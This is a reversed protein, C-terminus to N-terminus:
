TLDTLRKLYGGYVSVVLMVILAVVVAFLVVPYVIMAIKLLHNAEDQHRDALQFLSQELQGTREGNAYLAVFTPPFCSLAELHAAPAEGREIAAGVTTAAARLEPARSVVGAAQWSHDIRLGAELFNGLAFAFDALAQSRSAGRFLPLVRAMTGLLPSQRRLLIFLIISVAWVPGLTTLLRLAYAGGDWTFGEQPNIMSRLPALLLSLHLLGLPYLCALAIRMMRTNLVAHRAALNRLVRPLRGTDAAASLILLDTGPIWRSAIRLADDVSGGRECCEAMARVDKSSASGATSRLAEGMVMGAELMQALQGYWVSLQKHSLM